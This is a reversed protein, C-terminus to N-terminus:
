PSFGLKLTFQTAPRVPAPTAYVTGDSLTQENVPFGGGSGDIMKSWSWSPQIWVSHYRFQMGMGAHWGTRTSGEELTLRVDEQNAQLNDWRMAVGASVMPTFAVAGIQWTATGLLGLPAGARMAQSGTNRKAQVGVVADVAYRGETLVRHALVAAGSMTTGERGATLPSSAPGFSASLGVRTAAAIARTVQLGYLPEGRDPMRLALSYGSGPPLDISELLMPPSTYTAFRDQAQVAGPILAVAFVFCFRSPFM